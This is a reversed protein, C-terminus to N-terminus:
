EDANPHPEEPAHERWEDPDEEGYRENFRSTARRYQGFSRLREADGLAWYTGEHRVLGPDELRSLVTGISNGDAATRDAIEADTFAKDGNEVLFLLVAEPNSVEQLAKDDAAEFRDIDIPM